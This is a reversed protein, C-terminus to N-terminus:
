KGAKQMVYELPLSQKQIGSERDVKGNLRLIRGTTTMHVIVLKKDM